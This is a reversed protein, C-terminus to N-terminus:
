QYALAAGVPAIGGVCGGGRPRQRWREGPPECYADARVVASVSAVCLQQQAARRSTSSSSSDTQYRQQQQTHTQQQRPAVAPTRCKRSPHAWINCYLFVYLSHIFVHIFVHITRGSAHTLPVLKTLWFERSCVFLCITSGSAHTLSVLRDGLILLEVAIATGGFSGSDGEHLPGLM